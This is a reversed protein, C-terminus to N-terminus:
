SSTRRLLYGMRRIRKITATAAKTGTVYARAASTVVLVVVQDEAGDTPM